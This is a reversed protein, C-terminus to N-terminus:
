VTNLGFFLLVAFFNPGIHRGVAEVASLGMCNKLTRAFTPAVKAKYRSEEFRTYKLDIVAPSVVLTCQVNYM